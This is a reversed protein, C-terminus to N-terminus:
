IGLEDLRAGILALTDEILEEGFEATSDRPDEGGVGQPWVDRDSPLQSLDVLDPRVAIMVSTENRGAHDNQTRWQGPFDRMASILNLGFQKEWHDVMERWGRRSPGHGDAIVCRFGARRAPTLVAEVIQLFLGNPIWYCSGPLQRNPTTVDATDMGILDPGDDRGSIRDPGLWIPPFVVGGFRQAARQFLGRAQIFDAGLANQVGHWELTGIPLYAVPRHAIREELEHPLLEGYHVKETM